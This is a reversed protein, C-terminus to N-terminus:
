SNSVRHIMVLVHQIHTSKQSSCSVEVRDVTKETRFLSSVALIACRKRHGGLWEARRDSSGPEHRRLMEGKKHSTALISREYRHWPGREYRGIVGLLIPWSSREYSRAVLLFPRWRYYRGQCMM